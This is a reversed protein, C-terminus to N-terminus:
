KKLILITTKVKLMTTKNIKFITKCKQIPTKIM